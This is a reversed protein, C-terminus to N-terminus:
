NSVKTARGRNSTWQVRHKLLPRYQLSLRLPDLIQTTVPDSDDKHLRSFERIENITVTSDMKRGQVLATASADMEPGLHLYWEFETESIPTVRYVIQDILERSVKGDELGVLSQLTARIREPDLGTDGESEPRDNLKAELRQKESELQSHLKQYDKRGIEGDARMIMLKQLRNNIKALQGQVDGFTRQEVGASEKYHKQLLELAKEIVLHKDTFIRSFLADAM